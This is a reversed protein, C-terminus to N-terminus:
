KREYTPKDVLEVEYVDNMDYDEGTWSNYLVDLGWLTDDLGFIIRHTRSDWEKYITDREKIECVWPLNFQQGREDILWAKFDDQYGSKQIHEWIDSWTANRLNM